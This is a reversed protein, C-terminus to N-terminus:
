NHPHPVIHTPPSGGGGSGGLGGTGLGYPAVFGNNYNPYPHFHPPRQPPRNTPTPNSAGISLGVPGLNRASAGAPALISALALAAQTAAVAHRFM